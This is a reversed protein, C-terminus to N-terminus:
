DLVRWPILVPIRWYPGDNYGSGIQARARIEVAGIFLGSPFHASIADALRTADGSYAGERVVVAVQMQGTLVHRNDHTRRVPTGRLMQVLLYPPIILDPDVEQNEWIKRLGPYGPLLTLREQLLNGIQEYTM